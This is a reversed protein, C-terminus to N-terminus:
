RCELGLAIGYAIINEGKLPLLVLTKAPFLLWVFYFQCHVLEQAVADCGDFDCNM